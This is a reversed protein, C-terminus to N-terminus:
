TRQSRFPMEEESPSGGLTRVAARDEPTSHAEGEEPTPQAGPVTCPLSPAVHPPPCRASGAGAPSWPGRSCPCTGGAGPGGGRLTSPLLRVSARQPGGRWLGQGRDVRSSGGHPGWRPADGWLGSQAEAWRDPDESPRDCGLPSPFRRSQHRTTDQLSGPCINPSVSSMHIFGSRSEMARM